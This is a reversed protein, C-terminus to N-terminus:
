LGWGERCIPGIGIEISVKNTLLRGCCACKGTERGYEVAKAFPDTAVENLRAAIDEPAGGAPLWKGAPSLKGCYESDEKVYLHGANAGHAPAKSITLGCARFVPKKTEVRSFMDMLPALDVAVSATETAMNKRVAALQKESLTGRQAFQGALSGLFSDSGEHPKLFDAVDKLEPSPTAQARAEDKAINNYVASLQKDTLSGYRTMSTLLDKAFASRPANTTLWQYAAPEQEQFVEAGRALSALKRERAKGRNAHRVSQSTYFHGRGGCPNCKANGHVNARGGRWLGSGSCALCPFTERKAAKVPTATLPTELDNFM